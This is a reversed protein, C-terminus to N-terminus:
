TLPSRWSTLPAFATPRVRLSKRRVPRCRRSRSSSRRRRPRSRRRCPARRFAWRRVAVSKSRGSSRRTCRTRRGARVPACTTVTSPSPRRRRVAGDLLRITSQWPLWHPKQVGPKTIASCPSTSSRAGVPREASSALSAARGRQCGRGSCPYECIRSAPVATSRAVRRPSRRGSRCRLWARRNRRLSVRLRGHHPTFGVSVRTGVASMASRGNRSSWQQGLHHDGLVSASNSSARSRLVRIRLEDGARGVDAHLVVM